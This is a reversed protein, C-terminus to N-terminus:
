MKSRPLFKDAVLRRQIKGTATRPLAAAIFVRVPVKFAALKTSVFKKIDAETLTSGPRLVVAAGVVEGFKLDPMGFCVAEAINPHSLLVSDVEIPSIKEGGRNILEKLRGTITLFGDADMFGQDGTRFYPGYFATANASPNNLYGKTVTPGKVCVEGHEGIKVQKGNSDFVGIEVSGQAVGVTGPKRKGGMPNSTMQHSTETMAYAELAEVGYLKEVQELLAPALASSCSRVFRLNSRRLLQKGESTNLLIHHMTPVATFWTCQNEVLESFFSSAAFKGGSPMVAVGGTGLTAFLSAMLGHMHFLPMITLTSDKDTLKYTAAINKVSAILNAHTLPVSKPEGTTGSTFLILTVDDGNVQKPAFKREPSLSVKGANDCVVEFIPVGLKKAATTAHANGSKPVIVGGPSRKLYFMFEDLTYAPNLPAVTAGAAGIALFLIVNEISNDLCMSIVSGHQFNQSLKEVQDILTKYSVIPGSLGKKLAVNSLRRSNVEKLYAHLSM